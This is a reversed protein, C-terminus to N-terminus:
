SLAKRLEAIEEDRAKIEGQALEYTADVLERCYDFAAEVGLYLLDVGFSKHKARAMELARDKARQLEYREIPQESLASSM